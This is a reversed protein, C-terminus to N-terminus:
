PVSAQTPSGLVSLSSRLCPSCCVSYRDCRDHVYAVPRKASLIHVDAIANGWPLPVRIQGQSSSAVALTGTAHGITRDSVTQLPCERVACIAASRCINHNVSYSLGTGLSITLRQCTQPGSTVLSSFPQPGAPPVASPRSGGSGHPIFGVRWIRWARDESSIAQM